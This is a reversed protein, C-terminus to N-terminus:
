GGGPLYSCRKPARKSPSHPAAPWTLHERQGKCAKALGEPGDWCCQAACPNLFLSRRKDQPPLSTFLYLSLSLSGNTKLKIRLKGLLFPHKKAESRVKALPQIGFARQALTEPGTIEGGRGARPVAALPTPLFFWEFSSISDSKAALYDLNGRKGLM